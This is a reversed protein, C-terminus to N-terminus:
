FSVKNNHEDITLKEDGGGEVRAISEKEKERKYVVVDGDQM